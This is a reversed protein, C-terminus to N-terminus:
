SWGFIRNAMFWLLWAGGVVELTLIFYLVWMPTDVVTDHMAKNLAEEEEKTIVVPIIIMYNEKDSM